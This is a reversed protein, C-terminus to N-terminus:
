PWESAAGTGYQELLQASVLFPQRPVAQKDSCGNGAQKGDSPRLGLSCFRPEATHCWCLPLLAPLTRKPATGAGGAQRAWRFM